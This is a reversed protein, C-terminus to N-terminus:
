AIPAMDLGEGPVQGVIQVDWLVKGSAADFALVHGDSYGRFLRGDLFAVGRNDGLTVGPAAVRVHRWKERCTVGDVAFTTANHTFYLVGNIVIPGTEGGPGPEGTDFVCTRKLSPAVRPSLSQIPSFREGALNANYTRWDVSGGQALSAEPAIPLQSEQYCGVVAAVVVGAWSIRNGVRM